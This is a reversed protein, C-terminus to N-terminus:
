NPFSGSSVPLSRQTKIHPREPKNEWPWFPTFTAAQTYILKSWTKKKQKGLFNRRGLINVGGGEKKWRLRTNIPSTNSPKWVPGEIKKKKKKLNQNKQNKKNKFALLILM